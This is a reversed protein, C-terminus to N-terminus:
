LLSNFLNKASVSLCLSPNISLFSYVQKKADRRRQSLKIKHRASVCLRLSIIVKGVPVTVVGVLPGAISMVKTCGTWQSPLSAIGKRFFLTQKTTGGRLPSSIERHVSKDCGTRKEFCFFM